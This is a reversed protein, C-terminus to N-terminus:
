GLRAFIGKPDKIAQQVPVEVIRKGEFREAQEVPIDVAFIVADAAAVEGASIENEIGMAGQTEVKIRHGLAKGTKELQEAAMYTHAIGTPCATVAVINM